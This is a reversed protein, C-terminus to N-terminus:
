GIDPDTPKNKRYYPNFGNKWLGSPIKTAPIDLKGRCEDIPAWTLAFLHCRGTTGLRTCEIFGKQELQNRATEITNKSSFGRKSLVSYAATLDGNNHGNYQYALQLLLSRASFSLTNFHTTEMVAHPIGAFRGSGRRGKIKQRKDM